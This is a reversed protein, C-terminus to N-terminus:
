RFLAGPPGAPSDAPPPSTDLRVSTAKAPTTEGVTVYAYRVAGPCLVLLIEGKLLPRELARDFRLSDSGVETVLRRFHLARAHVTLGDPYGEGHADSAADYSDYALIAREPDVGYGANRVHHEVFGLAQRVSSQVARRSAHAQYQWAQSVFVLGIGALVMAGVATGVLLEVLTFGRPDRPARM